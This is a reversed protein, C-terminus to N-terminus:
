AQNKFYESVRRRVELVIHDMEKDNSHASKPPYSKTIDYSVRHKHLLHDTFKKISSRNFNHLSLLFVPKETYCSESIMSVSDETLYLADSNALMGIYPNDQPTNDSYKYIYVKNGLSKFTKEMLKINSDGTRRSTTIFASGDLHIIKRIQEILNLMEKKGFNYTPAKGGIVISRWPKPKNKFIHAFKKKHLELIEKSLKHLAFETNIANKTGVPKYNTAIVLDFFRAQLIGPNQIFITFTRPSHKKLWRLAPLGSSGTGIAVDPWPEHFTEQNSMFTHLMRSKIWVPLFRLWPIIKCTKKIFNKDLAYALGDAQSVMGANGDTISWIKLKQM